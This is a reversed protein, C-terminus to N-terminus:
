DKNFEFAQEYAGPIDGVLSDKYSVLKRPPLFSRACNNAKFKKVSHQFEDEKESSRQTPVSFKVDM